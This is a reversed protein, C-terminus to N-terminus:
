LSYLMPNSPTATHVHGQAKRTCTFACEAPERTYQGEPDWTPFNAEPFYIARWKRLGVAEMRGWIQSWLKNTNRWLLSEHQRLCKRGRPLQPSSSQSASLGPCQIVSLAGFM